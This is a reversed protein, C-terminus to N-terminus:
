NGQEVAVFLPGLQYQLWQTWPRLGKLQAEWPFKTHFTAHRELLRLEAAGGLNTCEDRACYVSQGGCQRTRGWINLDLKFEGEWLLILLFVEKRQAKLTNPKQKNIM